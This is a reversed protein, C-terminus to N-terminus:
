VVTTEESKEGDSTRAVNAPIVVTDDEEEEDKESEGVAPMPIGLRNM